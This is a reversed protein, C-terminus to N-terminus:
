VAELQREEGDVVANQQFSGGGGAYVVLFCTHCLRGRSHGKIRMGLELSLDRSRRVITAM